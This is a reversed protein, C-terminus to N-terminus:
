NSYDIQENTYEKFLNPWNTGQEMTMEFSWYLQNLIYDKVRESTLESTKNTLWEDILEIDTRGDNKNYYPFYFGIHGFDEKEVDECYVGWNTSSNCTTLNIRNGSWVIEDGKYSIEDIYIIYSTSEVNDFYLWKHKYKETLCKLDADEDTKCYDIIKDCLEIIRNAMSKSIEELRSSDEFIEGYCYEKINNTLRNILTKNKPNKIILECSSKILLATNYPDSMLITDTRREDHYSNFSWVQWNIDDILKQLQKDM